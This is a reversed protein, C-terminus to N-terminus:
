LRPIEIAAVKTAGDYVYWRNDNGPLIRSTAKLVPAVKEDVTVPTLDGNPQLTTAFVKGDSTVFGITNTVYRDDTRYSTGAFGAVLATVKKGATAKYNVIEGDRVMRVGDDTGVVTSVKGDIVRMSISRATVKIDVPNWSFGAGERVETTPISTLYVNDNAIASLSLKGDPLAAFELASIPKGGIHNLRVARPDDAAVNTIFHTYGVEGSRPFFGYSAHNTSDLNLRRWDIANMIQNALATPLDGVASLRMIAAQTEPNWYLGIGTVEVVDDPFEIGEISDKLAAVVRPDDSKADLVVIRGFDRLLAEPALSLTTLFGGLTHTQPRTITKTTDTKM